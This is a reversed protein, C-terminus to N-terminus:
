FPEKFEAAVQASIKCHLVPTLFTWLFTSFNPFIERKGERGRKGGSQGLFALGLPFRYGGDSNQQMTCFGGFGDEREGLVGGM